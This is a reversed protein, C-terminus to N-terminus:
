KTTTSIKEQCEEGRKLFKVVGRLALGLSQIGDSVTIPLQGNASAADGWGNEIYYFVNNLHEEIEELLKEQAM